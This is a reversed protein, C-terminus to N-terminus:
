YEFYIMVSSYEGDVKYQIYDGCEITKRMKIGTLGIKAKLRRIIQLRTLAEKGNENCEISARKVTYIDDLDTYEIRAIM